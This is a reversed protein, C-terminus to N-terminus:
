SALEVVVVPHGFVLTMLERCLEIVREGVAAPEADRSRLFISPVAAADGLCRDKQLFDRGASGPHVAGTRHVHRDEAHMRHDHM